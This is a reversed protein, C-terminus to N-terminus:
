IGFDDVLASQTAGDMEGTEEVGMKAQFKKIAETLEPSAAGDVAGRYYGLGKLRAQVGTLEEIPDLHGLQLSYEEDTKEIKLKGVKASPM